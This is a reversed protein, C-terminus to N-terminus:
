VGALGAGGSMRACPAGGLIHGLAAPEKHSHPTAARKVRYDGAIGDVPIGGMEKPLIQSPDFADEPMKRALHIRLTIDDSPRGNKWRFGLDVGRYNPLHGYRKKITVMAANLVDRAPYPAQAADPLARHDASRHAPEARSITSGIPSNRRTLKPM